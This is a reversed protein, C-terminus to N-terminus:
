FRAPKAPTEELNQRAGLRRRALALGGLRSPAYLGCGIVRDDSAEEAGPNYECSKRRGPTECPHSPSSRTQIYERLHSIAASATNPRAPPQEWNLVFKVLWVDEETSVNRLGACCGAPPVSNGSVALPPPNTVPAMMKHFTPGFWTWSVGVEMVLVCNVAVTGAESMVAAPVMRTAMWIGPEATEPEEPVVAVVVVSTDFTTFKVILEVGPETGVILESEADV